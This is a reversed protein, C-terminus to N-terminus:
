SYSISLPSFAVAEPKTKFIFGDACFVLVKEEQDGPLKGTRLIEDFLEAHFSSNTLGQM